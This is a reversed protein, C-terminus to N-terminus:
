GAASRRAELAAAECFAHLDAFGRPLDADRTLQAFIAAQATSRCPRPM